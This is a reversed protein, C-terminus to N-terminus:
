NEVEPAKSLSKPIGCSEPLQALGAQLAQTLLEHGLGNPHHDAFSVRLDDPRHGLYYARSRIVPIGIEQALEEVRDVFQPYPSFRNADGVLSHVFIVVCSGQDNSLRHLRRLDDTFESWVAPNRFFNEELEFIYTDPHPLFFNRLKIWNARVARWLHSRIERAEQFRHRNRTKRYGPLRELDNNTFGYVILDPDYQLGDRKLRNVGARSNYGAIGLNLVQYERDSADNLIQEIRVAYTEDLSVGQGMTISDGIMVTRHSGEPKDVTVEAGRFGLSNTRYRKGVWIGDVNVRALEKWKLESLGAIEDDRQPAAHPTAHPARARQQWLRMALEASGITVAASLCIVVVRAILRVRM